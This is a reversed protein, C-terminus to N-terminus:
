LNLMYSVKIVVGDICLELIPPDIYRSVCLAQFKSTNTKMFNDKFCQTAVESALELDKKIVNIDDDISALNNDDTYNTIQCLCELFYFLDNLFINFIHAGAKSGQPM